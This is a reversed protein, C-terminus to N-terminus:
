PGEDRDGSRRRWRRFPFGAGRRPALRDRRSRDRMGGSVVEHFNEQAFRRRVIGRTSTTCGHSLWANGGVNRCTEPWECRHSSATSKGAADRTMTPPFNGCSVALVDMFILAIAAAIAM